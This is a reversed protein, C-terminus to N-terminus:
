IETSQAPCCCEFIRSSGLCLLSLTKLTFFSNFSPTSRISCSIPTFFHHLRFSRCIKSPSGVAQKRLCTSASTKMQIVHTGPDLSQIRIFFIKASETGAWLALVVQGNNTSNQVRASQGGYLIQWVQVWKIERDPENQLRFDM